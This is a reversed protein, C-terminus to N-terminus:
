RELELLKRRAIGCIPDSRIPRAIGCIEIEIGSVLMVPELVFTSAISVALAHIIVTWPLIRGLSM